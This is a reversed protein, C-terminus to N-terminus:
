GKTDRVVPEERKVPETATKAREFLVKAKLSLSPVRSPEDDTMEKIILPAGKEGSFSVTCAHKFRKAAKLVGKLVAALKQLTDQHSTEWEHIEETLKLHTINNFIAVSPQTPQMKLWQTRYRCVLFNVTQSIWLDPMREQIEFPSTHKRTILEVMAEHPIDRGGRKVTVRKNFANNTTPAARDLSTAKMWAVLDEEAKKNDGQADM